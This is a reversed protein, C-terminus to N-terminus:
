ANSTGLLFAFLVATFIGSGASRVAVQGSLTYVNGRMMAALDLMTLNYVTFSRNLQTALVNSPVLIKRFMKGILRQLILEFDVLLLKRYHM